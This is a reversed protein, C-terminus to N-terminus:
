VTGRNYSRPRYRDIIMVFACAAMVAVHGHPAALPALMLPWCALACWGGHGLGYAFSDWYAATGFARLRPARHCGTEALKRLPAYRWAVAAGGAIAPAAPGCLATLLLAATNLGLGIAMWVAGYGAAFSALAAIRRRRLSGHWLRSIPAKLLPPTMALLMVSWGLALSSPVGIANALRLDGLIRAALEPQGCYLIAFGNRAPRTTM